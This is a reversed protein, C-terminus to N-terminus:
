PLQEHMEMDQDQEEFNLNSHVFEFLSKRMEDVNHSNEPNDGEFKSINDKVVRQLTDHKNNLQKISESVENEYKTIVEDLFERRKILEGLINKMNCYEAFRIVDDTSMEQVNVLEEELVTKVEESELGEADVLIKFEKQKAIATAIVEDLLNLKNELDDNVMVDALESKVLNRLLESIEFLLDRIESYHSGFTEKPFCEQIITKSSLKKLIENLTHDCQKTLLGFRKHSNNAEFAEGPM